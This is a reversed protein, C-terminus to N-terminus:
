SPCSQTKISTPSCRSCSLFRCSCPWAWWCWIPRTQGTGLAQRLLSMVIIIRVFSTMMLLLSPLLTLVTMLALLQLTISYQTGRPGQSATVMPLGQAWGSEPLVLLAALVLLAGARIWFKAAV